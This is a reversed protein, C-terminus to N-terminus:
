EYTGAKIQARRAKWADLTKYYAGELAKALRKKEDRTLKMEMGYINIIYRPWIYATDFSAYWKQTNDYDKSFAMFMISEPKLNPFGTEFNGLNIENIVRDVENM